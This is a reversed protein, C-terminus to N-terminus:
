NQETPYEECKMSGLPKDCNECCGAMQGQGSGLSVQGRGAM